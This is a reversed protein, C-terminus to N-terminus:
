PLTVCPIFAATLLTPAKEERMAQTIGHRLENGQGSLAARHTVGAGDLDAAYTTAERRLAQNYAEAERENAAQAQELFKDEREAAMKESRTRSAWESLIQDKHTKDWAMVMDTIKGM